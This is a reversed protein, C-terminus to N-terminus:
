RNKNLTNAEEQKYKIIKNKWVELQYLSMKDLDQKIMNTHYNLTFIIDTIYEVQQERVLDIQELQDKPLKDEIDQLNM